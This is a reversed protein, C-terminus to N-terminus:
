AELLAEILQDRTMGSRGEVDKRAAVRRLEDVAM